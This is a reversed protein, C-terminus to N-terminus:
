FHPFAAPTSLTGASSIVCPPCGTTLTRWAMQFLILSVPLHMAELLRDDSGLFASLCSSNIIHGGFQYCVASLWHDFNEVGDSVFDPLRALACCPRLVRDDSESEMFPLWLIHWIYTHFVNGVASHEYVDLFCKVSCPVFIFGFGNADM